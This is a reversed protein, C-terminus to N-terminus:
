TRTLQQFSTAIQRSEVFLCCELDFWGKVIDMNRQRMGEITMQGGDKLM